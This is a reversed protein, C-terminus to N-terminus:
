FKIKGSQLAANQALFTRSRYFKDFTHEPSVWGLFMTAQFLGM